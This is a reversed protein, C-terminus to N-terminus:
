NFVAENFGSCDTAINKVDPTDSPSIGPDFIVLQGASVSIELRETADHPLVVKFSCADTRSCVRAASTFTLAWGSQFSTGDILARAEYTYPKTRGDHIFSGSCVIQARVAGHTLIDNARIRVEPDDCACLLGVLLLERALATRQQPLAM